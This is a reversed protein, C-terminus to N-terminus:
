MRVRLTGRGQRSMVERERSRSTRAVTITRAPPKTRAEWAASSSVGCVGAEAVVVSACGSAADSGSSGVAVVPVRVSAWSGSAAGAGFGAAGRMGVRTTWSPLGLPSTRSSVNSLPSRTRKRTREVDGLLQVDV